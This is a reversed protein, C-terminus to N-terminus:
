YYPKAGELRELLLSLLRAELREPPESSLSFLRGSARIERALPDPTREHVVVLMPLGWGLAEKVARRFEGSLLEMPGVEDVVILGGAEKARRLARACFEGAGVVNVRYRGVSPGEGRASALEEQEGSLLDRMVFGTRRGGERVELSVVGGVAHGRRRLEETLRLALTTKGSGPPGTLVFLDERM